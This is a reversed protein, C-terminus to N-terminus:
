ADDHWALLEAHTASEIKSDKTLPGNQLPWIPQKGNARMKQFVGVKSAAAEESLDKMGRVGVSEYDNKIWYDNIIEGNVKIGHTIYWKKTQSDQHWYHDIKTRDGGNGDNHNSQFAKDGEGVGEPLPEPDGMHKTEKAAKEASKPIPIQAEKKAEVEPTSSETAGKTGGGTKSSIRANDDAASRAAAGGGPSGGTAGGTGSAGSPNSGGTNSTEDGGEKGGEEKGKIVDDITEQRGTEDTIIEPLKTLSDLGMRKRLGEISAEELTQAAGQKYWQEGVQLSRNNTHSLIFPSDTISKKPLFNHVPTFQVNVDLVHPLVLIDRKTKEPGDLAIEWPYNKNWKLSVSNLIGPVRDVMSGITLRIFPTRMRTVKYEPAVNSVLFNLKRYLPMMEHRSQAAVKFSFTIKRTFTNYTYFNEGRGNYKISNHSANYNDNFGDLFARFIM